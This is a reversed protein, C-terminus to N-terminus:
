PGCSNARVIDVKKLTIPAQDCTGIGLRCRCLEKAYTAMSEPDSSAGYRDIYTHINKSTRALCVADPIPGAPTPSPTSPAAYVFSAKSLLKAARDCVVEEGRTICRAYLYSRVFGDMVLQRARPEILPRDDLVGRVLFEPAEPANMQDLRQIRQQFEQGRM